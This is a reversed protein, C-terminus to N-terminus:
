RTSGLLRAHEALQIQALVQMSRGYLRQWSRTSHTVFRSQMSPVDDDDKATTSSPGAVRRRRVVTSDAIRLSGSSRRIGRQDGKVEEPGFSAAVRASRDM